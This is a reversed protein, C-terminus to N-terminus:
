DQELGLKDLKYRLARFSIGLRRAAATRNWHTEKLAADVLQREVEELLQDLNREESIQSLEPQPNATTTQPTPRPLRLDEPEIQGAECLAAARELINELERVNGPFAYDLLQQRAAASLSLAGLGNHSAIRALLHELLPAIDERRRRLPPIELEIVNLRYFLDQRFQEQEVLQSLCKHTASILRVDTPIEHQEGVPRISKEQIARLLKVQMHLPLDAVEDLFLTGGEAAQFLGQKDAIAGTFSGKKHGFFESEMLESPVAGCNIAIFPREARPSQQHILRAVLEKGTGSEGTIHVPAQNRALKAILRRIEAVAASGGLLQQGTQNADTPTATQTPSLRLATQVLRRLVELDLPKSVFDFAGLKLAEIATEMNGHATIVAVPLEPRERAIQEVLQLGSGDPLRMDTLCLDFRTPQALHRRAAALDAAAISDIAMRSLTIELLERIDPEDDVVLALAKSM